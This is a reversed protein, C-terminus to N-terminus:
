QGTSGEKAQRKLKRVIIRAYNLVADSDNKRDLMTPEVPFDPRVGGEKEFYCSAYIKTTSTNVYLRSNSLTETFANASFIKTGGTEQGIVHGLQFCQVTSAFSSAMSFSRRDTLVFVHGSFENRKEQPEEILIAEETKYSGIKDRLAAHIDMVGDPLDFGIYNWKFFDINDKLFKRYAKSIKFETLAFNKFQKDSIYHLLRSSVLPSGGYNGRVDIVLYKIGDENIKKFTKRLFNEYNDLSKVSFGYINLLGVEDELKSYSYPTGQTFRDNKEEELEKYSKEYTKFAMNPVNVTASKGGSTYEIDLSQFSGFHLSLYNNISRQIIANRPRPV